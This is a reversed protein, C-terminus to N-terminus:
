PAFKKVSADLTKNPFAPPTAPPEALNMWTEVFQNAGRIFEPTVDPRMALVALAITLSNQIPASVVIGRFNCEPTKQLYARFQEKPDIRNM